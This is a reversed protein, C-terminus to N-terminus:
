QGNGAPHPSLTADFATAAPKADFHTASGIPSAAIFEGLLAPYAVFTAFFFFFAAAPRDL